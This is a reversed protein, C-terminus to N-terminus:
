AKRSRGPKRKAPDAPAATQEVSQGSAPASIALIEKASGEIIEGTKTVVREWDTSQMPQANLALVGGTVSVQSKLQDGFEERRYAKLLLEHLRDSYVKEYAVIEDKNKGGVIPKDTGELARRRAEHVLTKDTGVEKAVLYAEGFAEDERAAALVTAGTVGVKHASAHLLGSELFEDLFARKVENNFKKVGPRWVFRTEHPKSQTTSPEKLKTATAAM